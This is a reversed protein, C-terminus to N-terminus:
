PCQANLIGIADLDFVGDMGVLDARDTVRVYRARTLGLDALDFRDGGAEPSLPDIAGDDANAFVPQVGACSDYPPASAACPFEHWSVGDESVAISALEAFSQTEDGAIWFANEFVVFDPGPGDVIANDAFAVVVSGGNGLSVVDLGGVCCGGGKPPGLIPGPFAAQGHSQGPGFDHLIGHSVFHASAPSCVIPGPDYAAAAAGAAGGGSGATGTTGATGGSGDPEAASGSSCAVSLGGLLLATLTLRITDM